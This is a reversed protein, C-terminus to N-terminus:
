APSLRLQLPLGASRHRQRDRFRSCNPGRVLPVVATDSHALGLRSLMCEGSYCALEVAATDQAFFFDATQPLGTSDRHSIQTLRQSEVLSRCGDRHLAAIVM